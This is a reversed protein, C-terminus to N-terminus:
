GAAACHLDAWVVLGLLTMGWLIIKVKSAVSLVPLLLWMGTGMSLSYSLAIVRQLPTHSERAVDGDSTLLIIM